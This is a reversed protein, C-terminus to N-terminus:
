SDGDGSHAASVTQSTGIRRGPRHGNGGPTRPRRPRRRSLRVGAAAALEALSHEFDEALDDLDYMVDYDGVLGICVHGNYSMIAVGLAQNPALPVMPILDHLERGALYLPLQPGPVNTVVLNFWRQGVVLRSAQSMINPPAFGTLDTLVKAGVAQGSSKVADMAEHIVSYRDAPEEAAVPLPAMVAAVQNGLSGRASGARVSVPVMAKLERDTLEGRRRLHQRLAGAVLALMVDNV